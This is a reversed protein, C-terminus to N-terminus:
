VAFDEQSAVPQNREWTRVCAKWDRIKTKGRVWGNAEYHDVFAQPDVNNGREACYTRVDDLSPPRFKKSQTADAAGTTQKNTQQNTPQNVHNLWPEDMTRGHNSWPEVMTGDSKQSINAEKLKQLRERMTGKPLMSADLRRLMKLCAIRGQSVSFLDLEVMTRMASEVQERPMGFGMAILESDEELEFSLNHENVEKAICELLYWYLGYGAPGHRLLLRKLKADTHADSDHKFWKV